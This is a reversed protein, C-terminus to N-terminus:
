GEVYITKEVVHGEKHKTRGVRLTVRVRVKVRVRDAGGTHM